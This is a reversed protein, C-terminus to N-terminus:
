RQPRLPRVATNGTSATFATVAPSQPSDAREDPRDFSDFRGYRVDTRNDSGNDNATVFVSRFTDDLATLGQYDGLFYGRANPARL